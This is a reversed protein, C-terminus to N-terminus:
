FDYSASVRLNNANFDESNSYDKNEDLIYTFALTLNDQPIYEVVIDQEVIDAKEGTTDADGNFTGYAYSLAVDGVEYSLAIVMAQADRDETIEDLIMTDMNTFLTGGGYGSFSHKGKQQLSSNYAVMLGLNNYSLESMVGYINAEIGSKNLQTENLYQMSIDLSINEQINIHGTIDFYIANNAIDKEENNSINYFWLNTDFLKDEYSVGSFSVGDKGTKQWSSDLGADSGQWSVIHGATLTFDDSSYNAVCARFSNPMMRIDDSDALPTDIIQRGMRFNFDKNEYDIYAQTLETYTAKQGSLEDNRKSDDGSLISIDHTTRFAVATNFGKYKALEYYLEVGVATAYNNQTNDNKYASHITRINGGVKADAYLSSALAVTALLSIAVKKRM